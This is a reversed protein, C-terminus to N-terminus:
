DHRLRMNSVVADQAILYDHGVCGGECPVDLNLVAGIDASVRADVLKAADTPFGVDATVRYHNFVSQRKSQCDAVMRPAVPQVDGPHFAAAIRSVYDIRKVMGEM